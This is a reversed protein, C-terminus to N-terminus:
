TPNTKLRVFAKVAAYATAIALGAGCKMRMWDQHALISGAAFLNPYAAEGLPNLPRFYPDVELGARNVPHGCPDLFDKCHWQDRDQPQHVPLDFLTERVRERDSKLGGGLFRGTALVVARARVEQRSEGADIEMLFTGKKECRIRRVKKELLLKVGREPLHREFAEKLRLGSTGPPMTPIEFVPVGLLRGLESTVQSADEMGLIAPMGVVQAKGLHPKLVQAFKERTEALELSRALHEPYVEGLRETGPFNVKAARLGPWGDQLISTIQRASFMKLGRIGVVLCPSKERWASTGAWMSDPVAYTTKLTGLATIVRVNKEKQRRYYLGASGVFELWQDMADRIDKEPIRAYPHEPLDAALAAIGKWPNDWHRQEGLPHIGLLDIMGSAFIIEGTSGVQLTAIDRSAAFLAAATGAMGTGIVALDCEIVKPPMM